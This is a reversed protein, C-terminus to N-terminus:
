NYIRQEDIIGPSLNKQKRLKYAVGRWRLRQKNRQSEKKGPLETLRM